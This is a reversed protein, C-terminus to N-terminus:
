ASDAPLYKRVRIVCRLRRGCGFPRLIAVAVMRWLANWDAFCCLECCSIEQYFKL